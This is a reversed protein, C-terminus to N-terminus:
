AGEGRGITFNKGFFGQNLLIMYREELESRSLKKIYERCWNCSNTVCSVEAPSDKNVVMISGKATIVATDENERLVVTSSFEHKCHTCTYNRRVSTFQSVPMVPKRQKRPVKESEQEQEQIMIRLLNALKARSYGSTQIITQIEGTINM